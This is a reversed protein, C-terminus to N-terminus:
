QPRSFHQYGRKELVETKGDSSILIKRDETSTVEGIATVGIRSKIKELDKKKITFLLQYDGGGTLAYEKLALGLSKTTDRAEKSTPIKESYINMGVKSMEAINHLGVSLGDSLDTMATAYRSLLLGEAVKPEPELAKKVLKKKLPHNIKKLLLDFGLAADGVTGTVAVIDGKKAGSRLIPKKATGLCFGALTLSDNQKTDGGVYEAGFKNCQTKAAKVISEFYSYEMDEPLGCSLLFAKPKAGMAAIDSLNISAIFKGIQAPTMEKPIHTKQNIIDTSMVLYELGNRLYAADDGIDLLNSLNEIIKREGLDSLKM